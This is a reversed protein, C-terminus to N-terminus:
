FVLNSHHVLICIATNIYAFLINGTSLNCPCNQSDCSSCFITGFYIGSCPCSISNIHCLERQLRSAICEMLFSSRFAALIYFCAINCKGYVGFSLYGTIISHCNSIVRNDHCVFICIMFYLDTFLVDISILDLACFKGDVSNICFAISNILNGPCGISAALFNGDLRTRIGQSLGTSRFSIILNGTCHFKCNSSVTCYSDALIYTYRYITLGDFLCTNLSLLNNKCIGQCFCIDCNVLGIDCTSLFYLACNKLYGCRITLYNLGPCRRLFCFHNFTEGRAIYIRQFLCACGISVILDGTCHFECHICLAIYGNFVLTCYFYIAM